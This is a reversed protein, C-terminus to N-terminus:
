ENVNVKVDCEVYNEVDDDVDIVVDNCRVAIVNLPWEVREVTIM